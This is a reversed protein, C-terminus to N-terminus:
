GRLSQVALLKKSLSRLNLLPPTPTIASASDPEMPPQGMEATYIDAVGTDGKPRRQDLKAM